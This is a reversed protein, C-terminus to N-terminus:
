KTHIMEYIEEFSNNKCIEEIKSTAYKGDYFTCIENIYRQFKITNSENLLKDKIFYYEFMEKLEDFKINEMKLSFNIRGPRILAPDLLDIHNTTMVYVVSNIECLGDLLELMNGLTINQSQTMSKELIDDDYNNDTNNLKSDSANKKYNDMIRSYYANDYSYSKSKIMKKLKNRDMVISGATDIEEFVIIRKNLPIYDWYFYGASDTILITDNFFLERLTEYKQLKDLSVTIISRELENALVKILSTKGCGPDGYLLLGLKHLSSELKYIGEKNKFDNVIKIIQNKQPSFWNTFYKKSSFFIKTYSPQQQGIIENPLLIYLKDDKPYKKDIYTIKKEEIYDQIYKINKFSSLTLKEIYPIEEQAKNGLVGKNVPAYKYIVEHTIFIKNEKFNENIKLNLKRNKEKENLSYNNQNIVQVRYNEMKYKNGKNFNSLIAEILLGNNINSNYELLNNEIIIESYLKNKFKIIHNFIYKVLDCLGNIFFEFLKIIITVISSTLTTTLTLMLMNQFNNDNTSTNLFNSDPSFM